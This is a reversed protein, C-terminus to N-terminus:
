LSPSCTYFYTKSTNHTVTCKIKCLRKCLDWSCLSVKNFGPPFNFMVTAYPSTCLFLFYSFAFTVLKLFYMVRVLTCFWCHLKQDDLNFHCLLENSLMINFTCCIYFSCYITSTKVLQTAKLTVNLEVSLPMIIFSSEDELCVTASYHMSGGTVSACIRTDTCTQCAPLLPCLRRDIYLRQHVGTSVCSCCKFAVVEVGFHVGLRNDDDRSSPCRNTLKWYRGLLMRM